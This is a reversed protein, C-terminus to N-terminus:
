PGRLRRGRRYGPIRSNLLPSIVEGPILVAAGRTDQLQKFWITEPSCVGIGLSASGLSAPGPLRTPALVPIFSDPRAGPWLNISAGSLLFVVLSHRSFAETGTIKGFRGEEM